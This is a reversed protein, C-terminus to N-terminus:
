YAMQMRTAADMAKPMVQVMYLSGLGTAVGSATAAMAEPAWAAASWFVTRASVAVLAAPSAATVAAATFPSVMTAGM